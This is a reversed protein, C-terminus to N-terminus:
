RKAEIIRTKASGDDERAQIPEFVSSCARVRKLVSVFARTAWYVLPVNRTKRKPNEMTRCRSTSLHWSLRLFAHSRHFVQDTTISNIHLTPHCRRWPEFSQDSGYGGALSSSRQPFLEVWPDFWPGSWPRGEVRTRSQSESRPGDPM